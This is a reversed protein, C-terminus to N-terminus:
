TAYHSMVNSYWPYCSSTCETFRILMDVRAASTNYVADICNGCTWGDFYVNYRWGSPGTGDYGRQWYSGSSNWWYDIAYDLRWEDAGGDIAGQWYRDSVTVNYGKEFYIFTCYYKPTLDCQQTTTEASAHGTGGVIWVTTMILISLPVRSRSTRRFFRM